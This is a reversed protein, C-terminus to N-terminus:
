RVEKDGDLFQVMLETIFEKDRINLNNLLRLSSVIFSKQKDDMCTPPEKHDNLVASLTKTIQHATPETFDEQTQMMILADAVSIKHIYEAIRLLKSVMIAFNDVTWPKPM